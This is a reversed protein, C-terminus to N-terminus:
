SHLLRGASAVVTLSSQPGQGQWWRGEVVLTRKELGQETVKLLSSRKDPPDKYNSIFETASVQVITKIGM